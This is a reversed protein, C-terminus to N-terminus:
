QEANESSVTKPSIVSEKMNRHVFEQMALGSYSGSFMSLAKRCASTDDSILAVGKKTTRTRRTHSSVGHFEAEIRPWTLM